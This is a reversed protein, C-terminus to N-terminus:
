KALKAVIRWVLHPSLKRTQTKNFENVLRDFRDTYPLRDRKGMDGGLLERLRAEHDPDIQPPKSRAVGLKPLQGAKRMNLLHRWVEQRTPKPEGIQKAYSAYLTEFHPTYPLDDATRNINQYITALADRKVAIKPEVGAFLAGGAARADEIHKDAGGAGGGGASGGSTTRDLLLLVNGFPDKATGRFGRSVQVPPGSFKLRLEQRRKYLDRVDDVLYYVAEAPLDPDSHLVLETDADAFKFSAIHNAQKTLALGLVDRYYKIAADLQPVRILIRDIRKLM